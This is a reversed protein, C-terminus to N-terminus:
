DRVKEAVQVLARSVSREWNELVAQLMANYTIARRTVREADPHSAFRRILSGNTLGDVRAAPPAVFPEAGRAAAYGIAPDFGQIDWALDGLPDKGRRMVTELLRQFRPIQAYYTLVGDRVAADEIVRLNGTSELEEITPANPVLYADRTADGFLRSVLTDPASRLSPELMALLQHAAQEGREASSRYGAVAVSDRRLDRALRSLYQAELSRDGREAVWSDFGLAILVGIIIVMIDRSFSLASTEGRLLKV